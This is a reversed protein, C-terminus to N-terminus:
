KSLDVITETLITLPAHVLPAARSVGDHLFRADYIAHLADRRGTMGSHNVWAAGNEWRSQTVPDVEEKPQRGSCSLLCPCGGGVCLSVFAAVVVLLPVLAAVVFLPPVPLWWWWWLLFFMWSCLWCSIRWLNGGGGFPRFAVLWWWLNCGGSEDYALVFM